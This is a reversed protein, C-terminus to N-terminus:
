ASSRRAVVNRRQREVGYIVAHEDRRRPAPPTSSRGRRRWRRSPQKRGSSDVAALHAAAGRRRAPVDDCRRRAAEVRGWLFFFSGLRRAPVQPAGKPYKAKNQVKAAKEKKQRAAWDSASLGDPVYRRKQGATRPRANAALEVADRARRWESLSENTRPTDQAAARRAAAPRARWGALSAKKVGICRDRRAKRPGAAGRRADPPARATFSSLNTTRVSCSYGNVAVSPRAVSRPAFATASGALAVVLATKM